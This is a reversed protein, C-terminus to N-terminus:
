RNGDGSLTEPDLIYAGSVKNFKEFDQSSYMQNEAESFEGTGYTRVAFGNEVSNVAIFFEDRNWEVLDMKLPITLPLSIAIM